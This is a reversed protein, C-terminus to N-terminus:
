GAPESRRLARIGWCWGFLTLVASLLSLVGILGQASSEQPGSNYLYLLSLVCCGSGAMAMLAAPLMRWGSHLMICPLLVSTVVLLLFLLGAQLLRTPYIMKIASSQLMQEHLNDAPMSGMLLSSLKWRQVAEVPFFYLVYLAAQLALIGLEMAFATLAQASLRVTHTVPLTLWTFATHTRGGNQMLSRASIVGATLFAIAFVAAQGGERYLSAYNCRIFRVSSALSILVAFQQLAFVACLVAYWRRALRFHWSALTIIQNLM